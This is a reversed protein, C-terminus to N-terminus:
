RKDGSGMASANPPPQYNRPGDVPGMDVAVVDEYSPPPEEEGAPLPAFTHGQPPIAVPPALAPGAASIPASSSPGPGANEAQAQAAAVNSEAEPTLPKKTVSNKGKEEAASSAAQQLQQRASMANLLEEPPHVGSYVSVPLRLPLIIQNRQSNSGYGIGIRVELDYRRSVNCTEFSPCVSPPLVCSWAKMDINAIPVEQTASDIGNEKSSKSDSKSTASPSTFKLLDTVNSQSVLVWSSTEDRQVPSARIHTHGILEVQISQLYVPHTYNNMRKVFLKLPVRENCTIISPDPLRAELSIDPLDDSSPSSSATATKSLNTFARKM